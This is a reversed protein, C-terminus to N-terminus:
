LACVYVRRAGFRRSAWGSVPIVAAVALLYATMVWQVDAVSSHLDHELTNLAVNTVTADVASMLAGLCIISLAMQTTRSQAGARRRVPGGPERDRRRGSHGLPRLRHGSRM